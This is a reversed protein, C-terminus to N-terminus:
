QSVSQSAFVKQQLLHQLNFSFFQLSLKLDNLYCFFVRIKNSKLIALGDAIKALLVEDIEIASMAFLM